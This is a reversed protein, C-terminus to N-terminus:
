ASANIRRSADAIPRGEGTMGTLLTHMQEIVVGNSEHITAFYKQAGKVSRVPWSDCERAFPTSLASGSLLDLHEEGPRQHCRGSCQATQGPSGQHFLEIKHDGFHSVSV